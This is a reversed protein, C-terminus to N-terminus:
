DELVERIRRALGDKSFPKQLFAIGSELVGHHVISNDTYGSVFLTRLAPRAALLAEALEKGGMRPMVVDTLLLDITGPYAEAVRLGEEGNSATLVTYGLTTLTRASMTLVTQEDEVLLITERGGPTKGSGERVPQTEAGRIAPFYIKVTTGRSPESYLWIHGGNQKVIGYVTALGLGTGKGHEKTTFFPEFAHAKVEDPMGSGTDSVALMVYEGPEVADHRAAYGADLTVVSTEITLKGGGPMADRANVVLNTLIQELQGPDMRVPLIDAEPLTVFEIDEGILRRLMKDMELLIDNLTIIRPAIIQRRSFALLQRTLDAARVAIRGIESVDEHVASGEPLSAVAMDSYGLIATLLNNFDHAVGGALRAVVEMKQSQLYQRQLQRRLTIDSSYINVYDAGAVPVIASLFARTETEVEGEHVQGTLYATKVLERIDEPLLDGTNHPLLNFAEQAAPNAFLIRGDPSVRVVPWPNELPFRAMDRIEEEAKKRATVDQLFGLCFVTGDANYVPMNSVAYHKETREAYWEGTIVAGAFTEERRCGPCPEDLGNLLEYCKRGEAPGFDRELAPNVYQIVCDENIIYIADRISDLVSRLKDRELRLAQETERLATIDRLLAVVGTVADTDDRLPFYGVDMVGWGAAYDRETVFRVAEGALCRDFNEQIQATFFEGGVVEPLTRGLVEDLTLSRPRLYAENAFIFRYERDMCFIADESSEIARQYQRLTEVFRKERSIDRLSSQLAIVEGNEDRLLVSSIIAPFTSGDKRRYTVERDLCYGYEDLDAILAIRDAADAYLRPVSMTELEERTYGFMGVFAENGEIFRGERSTICLADRSQEFLLRYRKETEHVLKEATRVATIDRTLSVVGTVTGTDDRLPFYGVDMARWGVPYEREVLFRVTEGALCRNFNEKLYEDFFDEDVVEPLLRGVMEERTMKRLALYAENAFVVRYDRDMCSICDASSEVAHRYQELTELFRKEASVDRLSSLYGLVGGNEDRLVTVNIVAPFVSGDKRRVMVGHETVYGRSALMEIVPARDEPSAYTMQTSLSPVEEPSYGFLSCWGPNADLLRGEPTSLAIADRSQEFLLRYRSEAERVLKEAARIATVDRNLSVVGIIGGREDRLPFYRAALAHWGDPFEREVPFQVVEGAFCRDIYAKLYEEFYEEGAIEGLTRGIVEERTRNRLALYADNAFIFRYERDLSFILDDSSEVSRRYMQLSELFRKQESVDRLVAQLGIVTGDAARLLTINLICPFMEGNKRRLMVERDTCHGQEDIERLVDRRVEPDAYLMPTMVGSVEERAFGFMALWRENADLLIGDRSSIFIADLSQEFLLRYRDETEAVRREARIRKERGEIMYLAFAIDGAVETLLGTEEELPFSSISPLMLTGYVVGDHELRVGACVSEGPTIGRACCDPNDSHAIEVAGDQALVRRFCLPDDGRVIIDRISEFRAGLGADFERRGDGPPLMIVVAPYVGSGVIIDCIGQLLEDRTGARPITQNVGRITTLIANLRALKRRAIDERRFLGLAVIGAALFVVLGLAHLRLEHAPLFSFTERIFTGPFLFLGNGILAALWMVGGLVLFVILLLRERKM